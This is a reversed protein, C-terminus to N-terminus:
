ASIMPGWICSCWIRFRPIRIRILDERLPFHSILVLRRDRPVQELRRETLECRAHCWDGRTAHPEPHLYHEDTCLVMSDLAWGVAGELPVDAPRYSYDYFTFLPALVYDTEGFRLEAYPDEPTLVGHERCLSVLHDYKAEGRLERSPDDGGASVTWLDHNGPVWILRAFRPGLIAIAQRLSEVRHGIDGAIILWDDRHDPLQQLAELNERHDLHLDSIALVKMNTTEPQERIRTILSLGDLVPIYLDVIALDVQNDSIRQWATAGDAAEFLQLFRGKGVDAENLRQVSALVSERIIPNDDVVVIRLPEHVTDVAETM